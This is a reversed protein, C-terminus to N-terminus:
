VLLAFEQMSFDSALEVFPRTSHALHDLGQPNHEGLHTQWGENQIAALGGCCIVESRMCAGSYIYLEAM